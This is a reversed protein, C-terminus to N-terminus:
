LEAHLADLSDERIDVVKLWNMFGMLARAYWSM